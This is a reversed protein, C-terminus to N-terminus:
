SQLDIPLASQGKRLFALPLISVPIAPKLNQGSPHSATPQADAPPGPAPDSSRRVLLPTGPPCLLLHSTLLVRPPLSHM